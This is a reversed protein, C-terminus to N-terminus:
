TRRGWSCHMSRVTSNDEVRNKKKKLAGVEQQLVGKLTLNLCHKKYRTRIRNMKSQKRGVVCANLDGVTNNSTMEMQIPHLLMGPIVHELSRIQCFLKFSLIRGSVLSLLLCSNLPGFSFLM